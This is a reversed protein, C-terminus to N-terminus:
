LANALSPLIAGVVKAALVAKRKEDVRRAFVGPVPGQEIGAVVGPVTIRLM